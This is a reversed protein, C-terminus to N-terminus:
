GKVHTPRHLQYLLECGSYTTFDKNNTGDCIINFQIYNFPEHIGMPRPMIANDTFVTNGWLQKFQTSTSARFYPVRNRLYMYKDTSPLVYSGDVIWQIKVSGDTFQSLYPTFMRARKKESIGFPMFPATTIKTPIDYDTTQGGVYKEDKIQGTEEMVYVYGLSDGRYIKYEGTSTLVSALTYPEYGEGEFWGSWVDTQGLEGKAESLGINYVLTKDNTSSYKTRVGWQIEQHEADYVGVIDSNNDVDKYIDQINDDIPVVELGNELAQRLIGKYIHSEDCFYLTNGVTLVSWHSTTGYKSSVTIQQSTSSDPDAETIIGTSFQQFIVGFNYVTGLGTIRDGKAGKLTWYVPAPTSPTTIDPFWDTCDDIDSIFVKYPDSDCGTALLRDDYAKIYKPPTSWPYSSAVATVSSGDYKIFDYGNCMIACSNGSDDTFTEWSPRNRSNLPHLYDFTETTTNWKYLISGATVLLIRETSTGYPRRYDYVSTVAGDLKSTNLLRSGLRTFAVGRESIHYNKIANAEYQSVTLVDFTTNCGRLLAPMRDVRQGIPM